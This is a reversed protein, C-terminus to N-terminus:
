LRLSFYTGFNHSRILLNSIKLLFKNFSFYFSLSPSYIYIGIQRTNTNTFLYMLLHVTRMSFGQNYGSLASQLEKDDIFGSRDRDAMQFCSVVNPDTGPPFASPVLSAFPSSGYPPAAAPPYGGSHPQQPAGYPAAPTPTGYPAAPTPAGYPATPTPKNHEKPPKNGQPAAYPASPAGYPPAYPSQSQSQSQPQPQAGYPQQPGPPPPGYPSPTYPQGYGSPNQPYGAMLKHSPSTQSLSPPTKSLPIYSTYLKYQYISSPDIYHSQIDM